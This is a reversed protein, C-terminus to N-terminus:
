APFARQLADLFCSLRATRYRQIPYLVNIEREPLPHDILLEVLRGNQIDEAMLFHSQLIIGMHSLAAQRLADSSNSTFRSNLSGQWASNGLWENLVKPSLSLCQHQALEDPTHPVGNKELYHPSACLVLRYPTLPRAIINTSDPPAGIRIVADIDDNAIDALGDTLTLDIIASPYQEMYSDIFPMLAYKGFVVPASIRLKGSPLQQEKRVMSEGEDVLELVTKCHQYYNNGATTLSQRRTTRHLLQTEFHKELGRLHKGVMTASMDLANAAASFSGREVVQVFVKMSEFVNM